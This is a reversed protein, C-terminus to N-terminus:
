GDGCRARRPDAGPRFRPRESRSGGPYLPRRRRRRCAARTLKAPDLGTRAVIAADRSAIREASRDIAALAKMQGSDMQDLSRDIIAFRAAADLDDAAATLSAPAPAGTLASLTEAPSM